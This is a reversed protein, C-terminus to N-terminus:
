KAAKLAEESLAVYENIHISVGSIADAKGEDNLAIATPDQKELLYNQALAIQEHWEAQAGGKAKMGYNGEKSFTQKDDGNENVGSFYASIINGNAVTIDVTAKWGSDAFAAEEAHYSGDKYAGRAVPGAELAKKALDFFENVHVSVGTIADTKGEENLAIDVSQTDILYKETLEAQEYWDAQANGKEKMGYLGAKDHAKKDAGGKHNIASWEADTIKGSEVKLTVYYQWDGEPDFADMAFYDGDQYQGAPAEAAPTEVSTNQETAPQETAAPEANNNNGCGALMGVLLVSCLIISWKKKM